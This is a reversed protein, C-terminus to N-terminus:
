HTHGNVLGTTTNITYASGDVPCVPLGSPFYTTSAGIDSLNGLPYTGNNRKWLKVQLEIDGQCAYCAAKKSSDQHGIVRPLVLASLIGLIVLVAMLETLSFADRGTTSPNPSYHVATLM